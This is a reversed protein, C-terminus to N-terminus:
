NNESVEFELREELLSFSYSNNDHAKGIIVFRESEIQEVAMELHYSNGSAGQRDIEITTEPLM